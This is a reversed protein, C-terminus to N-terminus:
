RLPQCGKCQGNTVQPRQGAETSCVVGTCDGCFSRLGAEPTAPTSMYAYCSVSTPSARGAQIEEPSVAPGAHFTRVYGVKTGLATLGPDLFAPGTSAYGPICDSPRSLCSLRGEFFGQNASQYAAQASIVTRTDGIWPTEGPSMRARLLSPLIVVGVVALVALALIWKRM